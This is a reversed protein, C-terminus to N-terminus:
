TMEVPLLVDEIVNFLKELSFPKEITCDILNSNLYSKMWMNMEGSSAIIKVKMNRKRIEQIAVVGNMIPMNMDMIILSFYDEGNFQVKDVADLGHQSTEVLYDKEELAEKLMNRISEEDEVVLIRKGEGDSMSRPFNTSKINAEAIVDSYPLYVKFVTGKGVTSEVKVFGGHNKAISQVTSLGLGTGKDPEKTSFFPDFIRNLNEQSIGVGDDSISIVVFHKFGSVYRQEPCDEKRISIFLRGGQPMADRANICLNMILQHMQTSDAMIPHLDFQMDLGFDISKPFTEQIIKVAELVVDILQVPKKDSSQGKSYSLIKKVLDSGRAISKSVVEMVSADHVSAREQHLTDIGIRITTLINNLDHAIGGALKGITEVRQNQLLTRESQRLETVDSSFVLISSGHTDLGVLLNWRSEVVIKKGTKNYLGIDGKWFGKKLVSHMIAHYDHTQNRFVYDLCMQDIIETECWGYLQAASPNWFMVRGNYDLVFVADSVLNLIFSQERIKREFEKLDTLERSIGMAGVVEDHDNWLQTASLFSPFLMGNKRVNIVQGEYKGNHKMSQAVRDSQSDDAYLVRINKGLVENRLYGFTKEAAKNFVVIRRQKDVAVIVDLSSEIIDREMIKPLEARETANKHLVEIILSSLHDNNQDSGIWQFHRSLNEFEGHEGTVIISAYDFIRRCHTILGYSTNVCVVADPHFYQICELSELSPIISKHEAEVGQIVLQAMVKEAVGTDDVLFLIRSKVQM